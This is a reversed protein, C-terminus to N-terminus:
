KKVGDLQVDIALKAAESVSIEFKVHIMDIGNPFLPPKSGTSAAEGGKRAEELTEKIFQTAQARAAEVLEKNIVGFLVEAM